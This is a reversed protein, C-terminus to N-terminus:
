RVTELACDLATLHQIPGAHLEIAIRRREEEVAHVTGDLLRRRETVLRRLEDPTAMLERGRDALAENARGVEESYRRLEEEAQKRETIDFIALPDPLGGQCTVARAAVKM